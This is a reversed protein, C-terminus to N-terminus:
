NYNKEYFELQTLFLVETNKIKQFSFQLQIRWYDIQFDYNRNFNLVWEFRVASFM